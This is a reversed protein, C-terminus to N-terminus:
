NLEIVEAGSQQHKDLGECCIRYRTLVVKEVGGTYMNYWDQLLKESRMHKPIDRVLITRAHTNKAHEQLYDIRLAIFALAERNLM